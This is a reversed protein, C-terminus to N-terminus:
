FLPTLHAHHLLAPGKWTLASEAKSSTPGGELGRRRRRRRHHHHRCHRRSRRKLRKGLGGAVADEEDDVGVVHRTVGSGRM